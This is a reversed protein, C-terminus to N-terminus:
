WLYRKEECKQVIKNYVVLINQVLIVFVTCGDISYMISFVMLDVDAVVQCTHTHCVSGHCLILDLLIIVLLLEHDGYMM